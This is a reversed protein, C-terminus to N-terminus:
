IFAYRRDIQRQCLDIKNKMTHNVSFGDFLRFLDNMPVLFFLFCFSILFQLAASFRVFKPSFVNPTFLLLYFFFFFFSPWSSLAFSEDTHLRQCCIYRFEVFVCVTSTVSIEFAYAIWVSHGFPLNYLKKKHINTKMKTSWVYSCMRHNWSFRPQFKKQHRM